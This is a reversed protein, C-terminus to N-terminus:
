SGVGRERGPRGAEFLANHVKKQFHSSVHVEFQKMQAVPVILLRLSQCSYFSLDPLTPLTTHLREFDLIQKPYVARYASKLM